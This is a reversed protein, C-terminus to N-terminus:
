PMIGHLHTRSILGGAIAAIVGYALQLARDTWRRKTANEGSQNAKSKEMAALRTDHDKVRAELGECAQLKIGFREDILRILRGDQDKLDERFGSRMQDLERLIMPITGTIPCQHNAAIETDRM